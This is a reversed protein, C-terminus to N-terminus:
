GKEVYLLCQGSEMYLLCRSEVYQHCQSVWFIEVYLLCGTPLKIEVGERFSVSVDALLATPRSVNGKRVKEEKIGEADKGQAEATSETSKAAEEREEVEMPEEKVEAVSDETEKKVETSPKEEVSEALKQQQEKDDEGSVKAKEEDGDQSDEDSSSSDDSMADEIASFDQADPAKQTGDFAEEEAKEGGEEKDQGASGEQVIKDLDYDDDEDDGEGIGAAPVGLAGGSASLLRSLGGLKERTSRDLFSASDESLRGEEDINGFLFGTLDIGSGQGQGQRSTGEAGDEEEEQDEKDRIAPIDDESDSSHPSSM